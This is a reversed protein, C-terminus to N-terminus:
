HRLYKRESKKAQMTESFDSTIRVKTSRYPLYEGGTAAKLIKKKVESQRYTSHSIGLYLKQNQNKHKQM